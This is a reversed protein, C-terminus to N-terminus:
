MSCHCYICRGSVFISTVGQPHTKFRLITLFIKITIPSSPFINLSTLLLQPHQPYQQLFRLVWPINPLTPYINYLNHFIDILSLIFKKKNNHEWDIGVHEWHTGWSIRWTGLINGLPTGLLVESWRDCRKGLTRGKEGLRYLHTDFTSASWGWISVAIKLSSPLCGM